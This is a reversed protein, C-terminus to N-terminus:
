HSLLLFLEVTALLALAITLGKWFLVPNRQMLPQESLEKQLRPNPSFVDTIFESLVPYRLASKPHCAKKFTLNLWDPLDPRFTSLPRYDWTQHRASQVTLGTTEKYPLQGTLMEYGIVAVSFLDSLITARGHQLYEPAIYNAAGLPAEEINTRQAIDTRQAEELGSVLTAGFDILKIKGSATVMINEPKLDRHVMDARQFVRVAKIIEELLKRVKDLSPQPNDLMWQRLTIGNIPECLQYNFKSHPPSPFVKMVRENNLQTGVWYENAFATLYSQDETYHLSPCKMVFTRDTTADFVEYVHSRSGAHLVKTVLFDDIRNNEILAPPIARKALQQQHELLSNSPLTLTDLLLCSLNDSSGNSLAENCIDQALLELDDADRSAIESLTDYDIFDHVGDTTLMFRDGCKLSVTQHDVELTNDMGMARTLYQGKGFNTRQHDRTLQHVKKDRIRYIRSDGVHFLHASNSKFIVSSFTTVLGNHKLDQKAGQHFLWSNLASLIKGASHKTSWSEPTAYYDTIFQITTTHSAKQGHDSCSVGDAICAVIGKHELEANDSPAKVLFADQNEDRLGQLSCGGFRMTLKSAVPNSDVENQKTTRM